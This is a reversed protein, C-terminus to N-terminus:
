RIAETTFLEDVKELFCFDSTSPSVSASECYCGIQSRSCNEFGIEPGFCGITQYKRAGTVGQTAADGQVFEM